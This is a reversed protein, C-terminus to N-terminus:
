RPCVVRDFVEMELETTSGHDLTQRELRLANSLYLHACDREVVDAAENEEDNPMAHQSRRMADM